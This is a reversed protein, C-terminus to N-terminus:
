LRIQSINLANCLVDPGTVSTTFLTWISAYNTIIDKRLSTRFQGFFATRFKASLQPAMQRWLSFGFCLHVVVMWGIYLQEFFIKSFKSGTPSKTRVFKNM